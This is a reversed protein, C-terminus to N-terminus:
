AVSKEIFGALNRIGKLLSTKKQVFYMEIEGKNKAAIKGRYICDFQTKVLEYTSGSLNVKGVEGSSEMRSALNVTDGWIDYAFKNKGIVGAVLPGTHIGIRIEWVPEGKALKEAKFKEMFEIMELAARVTDAPNTRNPTPLGGACMYADGITKIKELNHREIIADFNEFCYNLEKIIQAPSLQEAIKTFGKFDTFLVSVLDYHKPTVKGTEKLEAVVGAPLVNRLLKESQDRQLSVEDHLQVLNDRQAAIEEKQQQLELNQIEISDRQTEIEEKQQQIEENKLALEQKQKRLIQNANKQKQLSMLIVLLLAAGLGLGGMLSLSLWRQNQAEAKQKERERQLKESRAEEALLKMAKDQLAIERQLLSDSLALAEMEKAELNGSLRVKDLLLKREAIQKQAIVKEKGSLETKKHIIEDQAENLATEKQGIIEVLYQNFAQELDKYNKLAKKQRRDNEFNKVVDQYTPIADDLLFAEIEMQSIQKAQYLTKYLSFAKEHYQAARDPRGETYAMVQGLTRYAQAQGLQYKNKQAKALAEEAYQSAKTSNQRLHTQALQNLLNIEQQPSSANQRAKELDAISQGKVLSAVLCFSLLFFFLIHCNCKM